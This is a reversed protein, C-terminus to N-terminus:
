IDKLHKQHAVWSWGGKKAERIPLHGMSGERSETSTRVSSQSAFPGTVERASHLDEKSDIPGLEEMTM